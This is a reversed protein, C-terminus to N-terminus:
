GVEDLRRAKQRTGDVDKAARLRQMAQWVRPATMPSFLAPQVGPVPLSAPCDALSLHAQSRGYAGVLVPSTPGYLSVCPVDLAAALHGLGTDVAVVQEAGAIVSAVGQLNLKPLVCIRSSIRAIREARAREEPLAWPLCVRYGADVALRALTCWYGEPWHKKAATTSHVFVIYPAEPVPANAGQLIESRIGFQGRGPPLAYGLAQAFLQRIREVAHQGKSVAVRHRYFHAALSERASHRDLGYVPVGIGLTLLASKLLAQADIVLDWQGEKLLSRFRSWEGTRWCRLPHRRWRRVAVPIVRDVAPHWGPIEVLSEEVVWDFVTGPMAAAADTVAPLTHIVDGLSSTKIILVRRCCHSM